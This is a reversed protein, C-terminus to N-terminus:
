PHTDTSGASQAFPDNEPDDNWIYEAGAAIQRARADGYLRRVLHLAMDMGASVGSSTIFKGDDVWRAKRIWDVKNSQSEARDFFLKNSTAKHGDLIGARALLASGSCVSTTLETAGNQKRLFDLLVTNEVERLTGLGGPVMLIQLQPCDEFSYRAVVDIGQTSRVPGAKEAVTVVKFDKVYSWMEIPGFVDLVEFGEYLVIGVTKANKERESARAEYAAKTILAMGCDDCAGAAPYDKMACPAGRMPCWFVATTSTDSPTGRANLAAALITVIAVTARPINLAFRHKRIM